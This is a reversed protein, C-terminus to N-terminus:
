LSMEKGMESEEQEYHYHKKKSKLQFVTGGGFPATESESRKREVDAVEHPLYSGGCVCVYQLLLVCVGAGM